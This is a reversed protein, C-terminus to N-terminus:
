DLPVVILSAGNAPLTRPSLESRITLEYEYTTIEETVPIEDHVIISGHATWFSPIGATHFRNWDLAEGDRRIQTQIVDQVGFDTPFNYTALVLVRGGTTEITISIVPTHGGNSVNLPAENFVQSSAGVFATREDLGGLREELLNVRETLEVVEPPTGIACLEQGNQFLYSLMYVPDSLDIRGDCNVDGNGLATSGAGGGDQAPSSRPVAISLLAYANVLLITVLAATKLARV